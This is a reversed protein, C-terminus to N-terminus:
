VGVPGIAEIPLQRASGARTVVDKEIIGRGNGSRSKGCRAATRARENKIEDVVDHVVIECNIGEGVGVGGIRIVVCKDLAAIVETGAIESDAREVGSGARLM